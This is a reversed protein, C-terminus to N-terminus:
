QGFNNKAFSHKMKLRIEMKDEVKDVVIYKHKAHLGELMFKGEKKNQEMANLNVGCWGKGELHSSYLMMAETAQEENDSDIVDGDRWGGYFDIIVRKKM